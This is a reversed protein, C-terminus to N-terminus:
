TAGDQENLFSFDYVQDQGQCLQDTLRREQEEREKLATGKSIDQPFKWLTFVGVTNVSYSFSHILSWIEESSFLLINFNLICMGLLDGRYM